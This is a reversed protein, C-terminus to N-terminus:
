AQQGDSADYGILKERALPISDTFTQMPTKGYCYKGSHVREENYQRVRQDPDLRIEGISRYVKRRFAISYFGDKCTKNFRAGIGNTRPSGAKTGPHDTNEVEPYRAYEHHERNGRYESGRGTLVRLLPLERSDFFPIVVDNPMDAAVPANKRDYRKCFAV